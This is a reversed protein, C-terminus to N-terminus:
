GKIFLEFDDPTEGAEAEILNLEVNRNQFLAKFTAAPSAAGSVKFRQPTVVEACFEANNIVSFDITIQEPYSEAVIMNTELLDCPTPMPIEGVVTHIGDIYFHKGDIRTISSYKDNEETTPENTNQTPVSIEQQKLFAFVFMGVVILVFLSIALGIARHQMRRPQPKPQFNQEDM